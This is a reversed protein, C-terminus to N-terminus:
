TSFLRLLLCQQLTQIDLFFLFIKPERSLGSLRSFTYLYALLCPCARATVVFGPAVNDSKKLGYNVFKQYLSSHKDRALTKM